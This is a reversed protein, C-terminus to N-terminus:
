KSASGKRLQKRGRKGKMSRLKMIFSVTINISKEKIDGFHGETRIHRLERGDHCIYYHEDEFIQYTMNYYKGIDKKYARTKRKEHDQFYYTYDEHWVLDMIMEYAFVRKPNMILLALIDFEKATLDIEQGRVTVTRYELCFSLEGVTISNLPAHQRWDSNSRHNKM